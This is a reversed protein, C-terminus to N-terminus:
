ATRRPAPTFEIPLTAMGWAGPFPRWTIEGALKPRTIRQAIIHAGEDIQAKALHQGLCIHAGRGFALHHNKDEREPDFTEPDNFATPDRGALPLPFVLFADKPLAVGRYIVEEAVTRFSTAVNRMRFQEEVVKSCFAPDEACRVWDDPRSIMSHVLFTLMNRSTDYGAVFLFILLDRIEDDSIKGERKSAILTNLLEGEEGGGKAECEVVLADVFDWLRGYAANLEPLAGRDLSFALGMSELSARIEGLRDTPAGILACFNTIPFYSAFESMEFRGKPAWEDLLDNIVRRMLTRYRNVNRPTFAEAAAGRVRRHAEGTLAFIQTDLFRGFRTGQAGMIESVSANPPRLKDDMWMIDKMAQYGHVVYGAECRALWPHQARAAALFPMPDNALEASQIPMFGLELDEARTIEAVDSM